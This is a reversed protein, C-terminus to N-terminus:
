RDAENGLHCPLCPRLPSRAPRDSPSQMCQKPKAFSAEASRHDPLWAYYDALTLLAGREHGSATEM